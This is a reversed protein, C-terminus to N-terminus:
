FSVLTAEREAFTASSEDRSLRSHRCSTRKCLSLPPQRAHGAARQRRLKRDTRRHRQGEMGHRRRRHPYLCGHVLAHRTVQRVTPVINPVQLYRRKPPCITPRPPAPCMSSRLMTPPTGVCVPRSCRCPRPSCTSAAWTAAPECTPFTSRASRRRWGGGPWAWCRASSCSSSCSWCCRM